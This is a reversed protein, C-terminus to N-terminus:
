YAAPTQTDQSKGWLYGAGGGLLGGVTAKQRRETSDDGSLFGAAAGVAAGTLTKNQVNPTQGAIPNPIGTQACSVFLLSASAIFPLILQVKM